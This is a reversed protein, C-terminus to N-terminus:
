LGVSCQMCLLLAALSCREPHVGKAARAQIGSMSCQRGFKFDKIFWEKKRPVYEWQEGEAPFPFIHEEETAAKPMRFDKPRDVLSVFHNHACWFIQECLQHDNATLFCLFAPARVMKAAFNLCQKIRTINRDHVDNLIVKYSGLNNQIIKGCVIIM